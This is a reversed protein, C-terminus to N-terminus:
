NPAFDTAIRCLFLAEPRLGGRTRTFTARCPPRTASVVSSQVPSPAVSLGAARAAWTRPSNSKSSAWSSASRAETASCSANRAARPRGSFPEEEVLTSPRSDPRKSADVFREMM